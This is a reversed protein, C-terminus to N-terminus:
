ASDRRLEPRAAEIRKIIADLGGLCDLLDRTEMLAARSMEQCRACFPILPSEGGGMVLPQVHQAQLGINLRRCLDAPKGCFSCHNGNAAWVEPGSPDGRRAVPTRAVAGQPLWQVGALPSTSRCAPCRPRRGNNNPNHEIALGLHNCHQCSLSSQAAEFEVLNM